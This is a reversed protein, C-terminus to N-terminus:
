MTKAPCLRLKSSSVKQKGMLIVSVTSSAKIFSLMQNLLNERADLEQSFLSFNQDLKHIKYKITAADFHGRHILQQGDRM